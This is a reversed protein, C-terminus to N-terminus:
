FVGVASTSFSFLCNSWFFHNERGRSEGFLFFLHCQFRFQLMDKISIMCFRKINLFRYNIYLLVLHSIGPFFFLLNISNLLLLLSNPIFINLSYLHLLSLCKWFSYFLLVGECEIIISHSYKAWFVGLFFRKVLFKGDGKFILVLRVGSFYFIADDLGVSEFVGM